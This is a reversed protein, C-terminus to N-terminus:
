KVKLKIFVYVKKINYIIEIGVPKSIEEKQNEIQNKNRYMKM